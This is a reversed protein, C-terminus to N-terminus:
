LQNYFTLLTGKAKEYELRAMMYSFRSNIYNTQANKLANDDSLYDSLPVSGKQYSFNTKDYIKQALELNDANNLCSNYASLLSKEANQFRLQYNNQALELNTSANLYAIKSEKVQSTRRLGTLIPINVSFGIYSYNNWSDFSSSYREDYAQNGLRAFTNVTPLFTAKKNQYNIRQLEVSTKNITYENLSDKSFARIEPFIIYKEYSTTDSLNLEAELPLGMVNKLNDLSNRKQTVIENFQYETSKLVVKIRELDTEVVVGKDYQLELIKYLQQYSEINKRLKSEYESYIMVQFYAQAINYILLDSNQKDQLRAIEINRQGARINNIKSQDYVTQSIDVVANNIYQKGFQMEVENPGLIGAPIVTTQMKINNTSNFSANAQPLYAGIAQHEQEKAIQINNKYVEASAHNQLGFAICEPLTYTKTTQSFTKMAFLVILIFLVTRRMEKIKNTEM